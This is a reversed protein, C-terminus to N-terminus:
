SKLSLGLTVSETRKPDTGFNCKKNKKPCTSFLKRSYGFLLLNNKEQKKKMNKLEYLTYKNNSSVKEVREDGNYLLLFIGVGIIIISIIILILWKKNKMKMM